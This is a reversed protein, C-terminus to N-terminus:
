AVNDAGFRRFITCLPLIHKTGVYNYGNEVLFAVREGGISAREATQLLREKARAVDSLLTGYSFATGSEHNVVATSSPNHTTIAELFVSRQVTTAMTPSLYTVTDVRNIM